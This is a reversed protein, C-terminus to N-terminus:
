SKISWHISWISPTIGLDGTSSGGFRIKVIDNVSHVLVSQLIIPSTNTSSSNQVAFAASNYAISNSNVLDIAVIGPVETYMYITVTHLYTGAKALKVSNLNPFTVGDPGEVNNYSGVPLFNRSTSNLLNINNLSATLNRIDKQSKGENFRNFSFRM